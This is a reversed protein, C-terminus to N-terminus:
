GGLKLIAEALDGGTESLAQRAAAADVGAAEMVTRVDDDGPEYIPSAPQPMDPLPIGMPPPTAPRAGAGKALEEPRGIVQWTETGQAKMVSVQPRRFLYDREATRVV